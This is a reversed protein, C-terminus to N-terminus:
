LLFNSCAILLHFDSIFISPVGDTFILAITKSVIRIVLPSKSLCFCFCNSFSLGRKGLFWWFPKDFIFKKTSKALWRLALVDACSGIVLGSLSVKSVSEACILWLDSTLRMGLVDTVVTTSDSVPGEVTWFFCFFPTGACFSTNGKM